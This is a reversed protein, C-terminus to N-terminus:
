YVSRLITGTPTWIFPINQNREVLLKSSYRAVSCGGFQLESTGAFRVFRLCVRSIKFDYFRSMNYYVWMTTKEDVGESLLYTDSSISVFTTYSSARKSRVPLLITYLSVTVAPTPYWPDATTTQSSTEICQKVATYFARLGVNQCVAFILEASSRIVRALACIYIFTCCTKRRTALGNRCAFSPRRSRRCHSKAIQLRQKYTM